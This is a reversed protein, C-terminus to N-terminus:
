VRLSELSKGGYILNVQARTVMIATFMSCVIGVALTIAFGRVPGSGISLLIIAVFFTTVNADTITLLARDFGSQIAQQPSKEKLEERIRSFILVNADVAMGVTLVIGAIGPVTLTAGLVSMIAVILILNATLAVNAAFGFLRYYFLMFILVIVFGIVVSIFGREVNEDGLQAGVTREEVIYMPAALAGARLLLALDQAERLGLGTIRFNFGLAAQITAVSILRREEVTSRVDILEGDVVKKEIKPKQEIFLIAMSRGINPGTAESMKRGGDNDLQINVQPQSTQPDYSQQADQVNDGTVISRRLIEVERGEYPYSEIQSRRSNPLSALRFDLNAFKNLIRKAKASDQLGPLDVVIRSRGLRQVQPESVGLENVRNRLSTLNQSIARDELESVRNDKLSYKLTPIGDVDRDFLDFDEFEELIEAAAEKDSEERFKIVISNDSVWNRGPIFRVREQILSDRMGEAANKIFGSLYQDMDVQLLFHVGGSLDLGLSMPRGGIDQLWGPATSARNLSSLYDLQEEAIYEDIVSQARLQDQDNLFRFLIEQEGDDIDIAKVSLSIASFRESLKSAFNAQLPTEGESRVQISPDPQYVNPLAYVVGLLLVFVILLYQWSKFTNPPSYSTKDPVGLLNAM